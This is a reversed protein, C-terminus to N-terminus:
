VDISAVGSWISIDGVWKLWGSGTSRLIALMNERIPLPWHEVYVPLVQLDNEVIFTASVTM